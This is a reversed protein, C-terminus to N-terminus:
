YWAVSCSGDEKCAKRAHLCIGLYKPRGPQPSCRSAWQVHAAFAAFLGFLLLFLFSFVAVDAISLNRQTALWQDKGRLKAVLILALFVAHM